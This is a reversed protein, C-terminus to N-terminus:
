IAEKSKILNTKTELVIESLTSANETRESPITLLFNNSECKKKLQMM